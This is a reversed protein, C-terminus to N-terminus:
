SRPPFIGQLAIVFNITLYPQMNSVPQATTNLALATIDPTTGALSGAGAASAYLPTSAAVGPYHDVPDYADNTGGAPLSLARKNIPHTHPPLENITLTVQEQGGQDGWNRNTLNTGQGVGLLVRGQLNPLAFTSVGNGGYTTGLLSFLATNSNIPLLQGNCLAFGLPAFNCGLMIIEGVFSEDASM